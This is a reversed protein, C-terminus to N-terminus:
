SKRRTSRECFARINTEGQSLESSAFAEIVYCSGSHHEPEERSDHSEKSLREIEEREEARNVEEFEGELDKHVLSSPISPNRINLVRKAQNRSRANSKTPRLLHSVGNWIFIKRGIRRQEQAPETESPDAIAECEDNNSNGRKCSGVSEEDAGAQKKEVSKVKTGKLDHLDKSINSIQKQLDLQKMFFGRCRDRVEVENVEQWNSSMSSFFKRGKLKRMAFDHKRKTYLNGPLKQTVALIANRWAQTGPHDELGFYVDFFHLQNV